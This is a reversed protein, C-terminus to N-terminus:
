YDATLIGNIGIFRCFIDSFIKQRNQRSNYIAISLMRFSGTGLNSPCARERDRLFM